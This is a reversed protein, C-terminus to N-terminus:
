RFACGTILSMTKSRLIEQSRRMREDDNWTWEVQWRPAAGNWEKSRERYWTWATSQRYTWETWIVRGVTILWIATNHPIDVICYEARLAGSDTGYSQVEQMRRPRNDRSEITSRWQSGAVWQYWRDATGDVHTRRRPFNWLLNRTRLTCALSHSGTLEL